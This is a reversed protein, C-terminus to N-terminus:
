ANVTLKNRKVSTHFTRLIVDDYRRDEHLNTTIIGIYGTFRKWMTGETPRRDTIIANRLLVWKYKKVTQYGM